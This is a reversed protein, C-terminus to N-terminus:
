KLISNSQQLIMDIIKPESQKILHSALTASSGPRPSTVLSHHSVSTVHDNPGLRFHYQGWIETETKDSALQDKWKGRSLLISLQAKSACIYLPKFFVRACTTM